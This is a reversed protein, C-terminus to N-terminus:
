KRNRMSFMKIKIELSNELLFFNFLFLIGNPVISASSVNNQNSFTRNPTGGNPLSNELGPAGNFGTLALTGSTAPPTTAPFLGPFPRSFAQCFNPRYMSMNNLASGNLARSSDFEIM